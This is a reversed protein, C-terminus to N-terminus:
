IGSNNNDVNSPVTADLYYGWWKGGDVGNYLYGVNKHNDRSYGNINGRNYNGNSTYSGGSYDVINDNKVDELHEIKKNVSKKINKMYIFLDFFNFQCQM